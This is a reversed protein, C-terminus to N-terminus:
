GFKLRRYVFAVARVETDSSWRLDEVNSWTLFSIANRGVHRSKHASLRGDLADLVVQVWAVPPQINALLELRRIPVLLVSGRKSQSQM